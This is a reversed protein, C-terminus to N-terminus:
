NLSNTSNGLAYWFVLYGISIISEISKALVQFQIHYQNFCYDRLKPYVFEILGNREETTDQLHLSHFYLRMVEPLKGSFTSSLFIRISKLQRDPLHEFRGRYIDEDEMQLSEPACFDWPCFTQNQENNLQLHWRQSYDDVNEKKREQRVGRCTKRATTPLPFFINNVVIFVFANALSKFSIWKRKCWRSRILVFHLSYKIIRLISKRNTIWHLRMMLNEDFFITSTFSMWTIINGYAGETTSSFRILLLYVQRTRNEMWHYHRM